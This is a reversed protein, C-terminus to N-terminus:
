DVAEEEGLVTRKLKRVAGARLAADVMSKM